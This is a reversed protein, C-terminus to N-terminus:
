ALRAGTALLPFCNNTQVKAPDTWKKENKLAYTLNTIVCWPLQSM